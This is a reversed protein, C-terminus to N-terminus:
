GDSEGCEKKIKLLGKIGFLFFLFGLPLALILWIFIGANKLNSIAILGCFLGFLSILLGSMTLVWLSIKRM